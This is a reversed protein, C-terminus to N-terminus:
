VALLELHQKAKEVSAPDSKLAMVLQAVQAERTELIEALYRMKREVLLSKLGIRQQVDLLLKEFTQALNDRMKELAEYRVKLLDYNDELNKMSKLTKKANNKTLIHASKEIQYLREIQRLHVNEKDKKAFEEKTRNLEAYSEDLLHQVRSLRCRLQDINERLTKIVSVNGLTVDNYYAKMNAFAQEHNMELNQIHMNKHEETKHVEVRCQTDIEKRLIAMQKEAKIELEKRQQTFDQRIHAMDIEHQKKLQKIPEQSEVLQQRLRIKLTYNENRIAHIESKAENESNTLNQLAEKKAESGRSNQEFM